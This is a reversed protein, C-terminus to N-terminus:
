SGNQVALETKELMQVVHAHKKLKNAAYCENQLHMAADNNGRMVRIKKIAFFINDSVRQVKYVDAYSGSDIQEVVRYKVGGVDVIRNALSLSPQRIM